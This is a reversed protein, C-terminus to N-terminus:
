IAAGAGLRTSAGRVAVEIGLAVGFLTLVFYIATAIMAGAAIAAWSVRSRLALLDSAQLSSAEM